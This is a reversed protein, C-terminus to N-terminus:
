DFGRNKIVSLVRLSELGVFLGTSKCSLRSTFAVTWHFLANVRGQDKQSTERLFMGRINICPIWRGAELIHSM